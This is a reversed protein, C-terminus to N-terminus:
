KLNAVLKRLGAIAREPDRDLWSLSPFEMVTAVYEKDEESWRAMYTYDDKHPM